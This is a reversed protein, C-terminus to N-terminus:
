NTEICKLYDIFYTGPDYMKKDLLSVFGSRFPYDVTEGAYQVRIFTVPSAKLEEYNEKAFLFTSTLIRNNGNKDDRILTGCSDPGTHILTVIKGNQLQIYIRSSADFCSAKLFESSRKFVQAEIGLVGNTNILSFFINTSNGAFNREFIMYQKTSKYTGITDKIDTDIECPKQAYISLNALLFLAFAIKKM